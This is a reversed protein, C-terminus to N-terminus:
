VKSQQCTLLVFSSPMTQIIYSCRCELAALGIVVGVPTLRCCFCAWWLGLTSAQSSAGMRDLEMVGRQLLHMRWSAQVKAAAKHQHSLHCRM